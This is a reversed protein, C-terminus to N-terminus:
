DDRKLQTARENETVDFVHKIARRVGEGATADLVTAAQDDRLHLPADDPQHGANYEPRQNLPLSLCEDVDVPSADVGLETM